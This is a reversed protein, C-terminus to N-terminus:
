KRDRWWVYTRMCGERFPIEARFGTDREAATCDFASLPLSAGSFPIKGFLFPINPAVTDQLESMFEKLTRTHSSGITYTTFPKGKEGILRFARAVDDIYVFDYNQSGETLEPSVGEICKRIVTNLLRPSEEGVGYANTIEGGLFDIGEAAAICSCLVHAAVKGGGYICGGGPRFGDTYVSALCEKEAISGAFIFRACGLKKAMEVCQASWQANQLQLRTDARARGASGEWAFHYFVDCKEHISSAAEEINELTCNVIEVSGSQKLRSSHGAHVLAYVKYRHKVLENVVASGVFGNAGTVVAIRM